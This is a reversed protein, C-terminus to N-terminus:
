RNDYADSFHNSKMISETDPELLVTVDVELELQVSTCTVVSAALASAEDHDGHQGHEQPLCLL